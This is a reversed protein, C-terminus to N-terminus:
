QHTKSDTLLTTFSQGNDYVRAQTAGDSLLDKKLEDLHFAMGAGPKAIVVKAQACNSEFPKVENGHIDIAKIKELEEEKNTHRIKNKTSSM